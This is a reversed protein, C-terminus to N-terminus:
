KALRYEYARSGERKRLEIKHKGFQDKRLDRLRATVTSDSVRLKRDHWLRACIEWPMVWRGDSLIALVHANLTGAVLSPSAAPPPKAIPLDAVFGFEIQPDPNM